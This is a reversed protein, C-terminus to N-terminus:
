VVGRAAGFRSFGQQGRLRLRQTLGINRRRKLAQGVCDTGSSKTSGTHGKCVLLEDRLRDFTLTDLLKTGIDTINDKTPVWKFKVINDDRLAEVWSQRMDIHRMKSRRTQGQSFAVATSKDVCLEIPTPYNFGMEDSVYGLHLMENLGASAPYIEAAASPVDAHLDDITPHCRLRSLGQHDFSFGDLDPGFKVSSAKSGFMILARGKM